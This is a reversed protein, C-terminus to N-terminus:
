HQGINNRTFPDTELNYMTLNNSEATGGYLALSSINARHEAAVAFVFQKSYRREQRQM